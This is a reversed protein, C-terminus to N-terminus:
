RRYFLLLEIRRNRSRKDESENDKDLQNIDYQEKSTSENRQVSNFEGFSTVSMLHKAPDIKIDETDKLFNFVAIARNAALQVNTINVPVNDAHGEIQIREINELRNKIAVGVNTLVKKGTENLQYDGTKFLIKDSFTIRQLTPENKIRIDYNSSGNTSIGFTKSDKGMEVAKTNYSNSIEEIMKHQNQNVENLNVTGISIAATVLFLVLVLILVLSLMLDAFSPWFNFDLVNDEDM